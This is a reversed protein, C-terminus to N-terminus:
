NLGKKKLYFFLSNFRIHVSPSFDKNYDAKAFTSIFLKWAAAAVPPM